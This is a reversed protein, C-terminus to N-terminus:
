FEIIRNTGNQLEVLILSNSKENQEIQVSNTLVSLNNEIRKIMLSRDKNQITM